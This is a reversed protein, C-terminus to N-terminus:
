DKKFVERMQEKASPLDGDMKTLLEELRSQLNSAIKTYSGDMKAGTIEYIRGNKLNRIVNELKQIEFSYNERISMYDGRKILMDFFFFQM